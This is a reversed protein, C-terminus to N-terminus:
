SSARRRPHPATYIKHSGVNRLFEHGGDEPYVFRSTLFWCSCTDLLSLWWDFVGLPLSPSHAVHSIFLPSPYPWTLRAPLLWGVLGEAPKAIHVGEDDSWVSGVLQLVEQVVQVTDVLILVISWHHHRHLSRIHGVGWVYMWWHMWNVM